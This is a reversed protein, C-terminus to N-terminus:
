DWDPLPIIFVPISIEKIMKVSSTSGILLEFLFGRKHSGMVLLDVKLKQVEQKLTEITPGQLLLAEAEISHKKLEESMSRLTQHEKKLEEARMERIYVPGVRLGIFDPDPAAVHIIWVKSNFKEAMATAHKILKGDSPKLDVAVLINKFLSEM